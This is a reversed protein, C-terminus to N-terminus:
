VGVDIPTAPTGQLVLEPVLAPLRRPVFEDEATELEPVDVVPDRDHVGREATGLDVSSRPRRGVRSRPLLARGPRRLGVFELLHRRTWVSSGLDFGELGAEEALERRLAIEDTEGEDVGGGPMAWGTWHRFELRVLLVRDDPDLVVARVAERIRLETM